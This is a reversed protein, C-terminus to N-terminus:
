TSPAPPPVEPTVADSAQIKYEFFYPLKVDTYTPSSEFTMAEGDLPNLGLKEDTIHVAVMLLIAMANNALILMENTYVNIPGKGATLDMISPLHFISGFAVIDAGRFLQQGANAKPAVDGSVFIEFTFTDTVAYFAKLLVEVDTHFSLKKRIDTVPNPKSFYAKFPKIKKALLSDLAPMKPNQLNKAHVNAEIFKSSEHLHGALMRLAYSFFAFAGSREPDNGHQTLGHLAFVLRKTAISLENFLKTSGLFLALDNKTLKKLQAKTLQFHIITTM